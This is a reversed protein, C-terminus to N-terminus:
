NNAEEDTDNDSADDMRVSGGAAATTKDWLMMAVATALLVAVDMMTALM